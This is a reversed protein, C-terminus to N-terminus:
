IYKKYSDKMLKTRKLYIASLKNLYKLQNKETFNISATFLYVRKELTNNRISIDCSVPPQRPISWM